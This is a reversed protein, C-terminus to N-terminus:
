LVAMRQEIVPTTTYNWSTWSVFSMPRVILSLRCQFVYMLLVVAVALRVRSAEQSPIAPVAGCTYATQM